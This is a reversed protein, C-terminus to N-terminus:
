TYSRLTAGPTFNIDLTKPSPPGYTAPAFSPFKPASYNQAPKPVSSYNQTTPVNLRTGVPLSNPNGSYGLQKYNAGNGLYKQAIGWLTDGSKVTYGQGASPNSVYNAVPSYNQPTYSAEAKPVISGMVQNVMGLPNSKKTNPVPLNQGTGKNYLEMLHGTTSKNGKSKQDHVFQEVTMTPRPVAKTAAGAVAKTPTKAYERFEPTNTVKAVYNPDAAYGAKKIEEVMKAPDNAVKM